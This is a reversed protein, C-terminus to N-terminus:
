SADRSALFSQIFDHRERVLHNQHEAMAKLIDVCDDADVLNSWLLQDVIGAAWMQIGEDPDTFFEPIWPLVRGDAVVRLLEIASRRVEIDDNDCYIEYCCLMASWPHIQWLVFRALESGPMNAIYYNVASRCVDTGVILELAQRALFTSGHESGDPRIAGVRRALDEWNLNPADDISPM